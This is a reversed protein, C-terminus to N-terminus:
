FMDKNQSSNPAKNASEGFAREQEKNVELPEQNRAAEALNCYVKEPEIGLLQDIKPQNKPQNHYATIVKVEHSSADFSLTIKRKVEQRGLLYDMDVNFFDAIVELTELGPEREGREYMNISSDSIKTLQSLAKRTLERDKRLYKLREAFTTM